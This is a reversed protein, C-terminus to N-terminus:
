KPINEKQLDLKNMIRVAKTLKVDGHHVTLADIRSKKDHNNDPPNKFTYMDCAICLIQNM